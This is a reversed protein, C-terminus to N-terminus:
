PPSVFAQGSTLSVLPSWHLGDCSLSLGVLGDDVRPELEAGAGPPLALPFLGILTRPDLPNAKVAAFYVQCCRPRLPHM